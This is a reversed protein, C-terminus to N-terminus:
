ASILRSVPPSHSFDRKNMMAMTKAWIFPMPRKTNTSVDPEMLFSNIPDASGALIRQACLVPVGLQLLHVGNKGGFAFKRLEDALACFVLARGSASAAKRVASM